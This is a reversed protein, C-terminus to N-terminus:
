YSVTGKLWASDEFIFINTNPIYKLKQHLFLSTGSGTSKIPFLRIVIYKQQGSFAPKKKKTPCEYFKDKIEYLFGRKYLFYPQTSVRYAVIFSDSSVSHFRTTYIVSAQGQNVKFM